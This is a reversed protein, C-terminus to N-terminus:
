IQRLTALTLSFRPRYLYVGNAASTSNSDGTVTVFYNFGEAVTHGLGATATVDHYTQYAGLTGSADTAASIVTTVADSALNHRYLAVTPMTGPLAGAGAAKKVAVTVSAVVAGVPLTVWFNLSPPGTNDVQQVKEATNEAFAVPAVSKDYHLHCPPVHSTLARAGNFNPWGSGTFYTKDADPKFKGTTGGGVDFDFTALVIGSAATLTSPGSAGIRDAQGDDIANIEAATLFQGDSKPTSFVKAPSPM